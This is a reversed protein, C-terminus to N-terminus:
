RTLRDRPISFRTVLGELDRVKVGSRTLNPPASFRCRGQRSESRWSRPLRERINQAVKIKIRPGFVFDLGGADRSLHVGIKPAAQGSRGRTRSRWDRSDNPRTGSKRTPAFLGRALLTKRLAVCEPRHLSARTRALQRDADIDNLRCPLRRGACKV